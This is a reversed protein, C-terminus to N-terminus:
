NERSNKRTERSPKPRGLPPARPMRSARQSVVQLVFAICFLMPNSVADLLSENTKSRRQTLLLVCLGPASLNLVCSTSIHVRRVSGTHPISWEEWGGRAQTVSRLTVPASISQHSPRPTNTKLCLPQPSPPTSLRPCYGRRHLIHIQGSFPPPVPSSRVRDDDM